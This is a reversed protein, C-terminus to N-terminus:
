FVVNFYIKERVALDMGFVILSGQNIKKKFGGEQM